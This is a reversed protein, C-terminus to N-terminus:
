QALVEWVEPADMELIARRIKRQARWAVHKGTSVSIQDDPNEANYLEVVEPITRTM